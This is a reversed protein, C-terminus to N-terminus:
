RERRRLAVALAIMAAMVLGAALNGLRAFLTVPLATPMPLEAAGATEHAVTALLRGDAAIIASIGTPTARVIPLGEEIARMRAQALHQPPGWSGFWADNSPNFLLRPRHARDVTQGSFIIEYCIQIGISGFGALTLNGPGEGSTFDIDGPVLRALGLPKLLWPMPLYEGYPVLHAKDYRGRLRAQADVAFVSNTAGAIRDERDFSLSTGGTLLIDDPGLLRAIRRRLYLPSSWDYAYFPYGDELYDRVVGEPWVVLRPTAGPTGSLKELASLVREGDSESRDEQGIDPQVVRVRPANAPAAPADTWLASLAALALLPVVIAPMAVRRRSLMWLSGAAVITVGSLAYTGIWASLRAIGIAPLWMVGLPDWAYGTFLVSRLWETAIWAAAFVLIFAPDPTATARRGLRWALGAAVMPFIALYLALGVAAFYGLVPPMADQFDFAHQFWNNNVTFHGLGFLWGRWLAQRLTPADHVLALWAAVAVLALPWLDLPAFGTAVIAGLLVCALAPSTLAARAPSRTM